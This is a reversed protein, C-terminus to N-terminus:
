GRPLPRRDYITAKSVVGFSECDTAKFHRRKGLRKSSFVGRCADQLLEPKLQGARDFELFLLEDFSEAVLVSVVHLCRSSEPWTLSQLSM